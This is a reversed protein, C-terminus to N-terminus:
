VHSLILSDTLTTHGTLCSVKNVTIHKEKIRRDHRPPWSKLLIGADIKNVKLLKHTIPKSM